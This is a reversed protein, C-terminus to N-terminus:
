NLQGSYVVFYRLCFGGIVVLTSIQIVWNRHKAVGYITFILPILLGITVVGLWFLMAMSGSFYITKVSGYLLVLLLIELVILVIDAKKYITLDSDKSAGILAAALGTSIASVLFLMPLFPVTSSGLLPTHWLNNTSVASLLFGTYTATGLAFLSGIIAVLKRILQRGQGNSSSESAAAVEQKAKVKPSVDERYSNTRKYADLWVV